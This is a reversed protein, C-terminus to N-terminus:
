RSARRFRPLVVGSAAEDWVLEVRMGIEVADESGGILNSILRVGPVDDLEVLIVVYPVHAQLAPLSPHHIVTYSFVLGRGPALIWETDASGCHPCGAM